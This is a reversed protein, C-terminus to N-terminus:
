RAAVGPQSGGGGAAPGQRAVRQREPQCDVAADRRSREGRERQRRRAVLLGASDLDDRHSAWHLATTGDAEAANVDARQEVLARLADRDGNKAAAVLPPRVADAAASAAASAGAVLLLVLATRM